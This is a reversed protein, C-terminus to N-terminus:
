SLPQWYECHNFYNASLTGLNQFTTVDWRDARLAYWTPRLYLGHWFAADFFRQELQYHYEMRQEPDVTSEVLEELRDHEPDCFGWGNNGDPSEPTPIGRCGFWDLTGNPSLPNTSLAFIALDFDGTSLIGRDVYSAFLISAPVPLLQTGIGVANLYEQILLQYDMRLQRTTTFFRLVLELGDKDRTGNGNTDVWGAEDLLAAAREPDYERFPLDPPIFLESYWSRALQVGPGVLGEAMTPRDIAYAIAERVRVDTLAPHVNGNGTNIWLADGYVGATSWVEAGEIASYGEVLDDSFNFALDIEGNQLANQMQSADPIFKIIVRDIAPEQGDWNPNKVLTISDGIIWSDFVYPGYGVVGQGTWMPANDITGDAELTPALVHEPYACTVFQDSLFDPWPRNYTLVMTYDDVKELSEVIEPYQGRQFNGLERNMRINHWFLCDDVTIPEGDSWLMGERLHYEVQTNGNELTRVMGNEFSPIETVMIPFIERNVDWDWVDRGYFNQILSAFTMDVMPALVNPEQEWGIVIVTEDQATAPAVGFLALAMVLTLALSVVRYLRSKNM